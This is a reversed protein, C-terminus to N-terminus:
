YDSYTEASSYLELIIERKKQTRKEVIKETKTCSGSSQLFSSYNKHEKQGRENQADLLLLALISTGFKMM